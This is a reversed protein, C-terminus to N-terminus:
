DSKQASSSRRSRSSTDRASTPESQQEVFSPRGLDPVEVLRGAAIHAQWGEENPDIQVTEGARMGRFNQHVKYPRLATSDSM